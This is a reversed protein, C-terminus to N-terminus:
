QKDAILKRVGALKVCVCFLEMAVSLEECTPYTPAIRINTDRPDKRYPFTAGAGTMVVGAEAALAVTAKACGDLTDIAVFYGGEPKTWQALGSGALEKELTDLVIDFKPRLEKAMVEMQAKLGAADKLFRVTRLQNIKDHGITQKTMHKKVQVINELSSAMMAVGGGPYTIKSTSFFYYVRNPNGCEECAKLIDKLTNEKYIHHVGYANDWMICFDSAATKMRALRDVTEDSYCIGQPNSYLPVCWIGKVSDDESALREVMDMDPGEEKMPVTVMEIGLDECIGFHRDYGPSPCLFKVKPLKCWAKGGNHGFLMCRVLTDYMLNLSSNGAVIIKEVDIGLVDSFLKRAEMIGELCGYNRLDMSSSKWEKMEGLLANNHDLQSPAPKGRSMDLSLNRTQFAAYQKELDDRAAFLESLALTRYDKM